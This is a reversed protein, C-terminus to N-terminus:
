QRIKGTITSKLGKKQYCWRNRLEYTPMETQLNYRQFLRTLIWDTAWTHPPPIERNIEEAHEQFCDRAKPSMYLGHTGFITHSSRETYGLYLLDANPFLKLIDDWGDELVCDDEFVLYSHDPFFEKAFNAVALHSRTCGEPGHPLLIAEVVVAGTKEVLDAVVSEREVSSPHHIVFAPIM